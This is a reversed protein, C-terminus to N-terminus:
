DIHSPCILPFTINIMPPSMKKGVKAEEGDFNYQFSTEIYFLIDCRCKDRFVKILCNILIM